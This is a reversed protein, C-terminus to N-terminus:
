PATVSSAGQQSIALCILRERRADESRGLKAYAKVLALHAELNGPESRLASELHPLGGALDGTEVLAKGYVLQGMPLSPDDAIASKADDMSGTYNGELERAWAIMAHARANAPSVKLEEAFQQVAEKPKTPFLLYGYFYHVNALKPHQAFIAQFATQGGDGRQLMADIAAHGASSLLANQEGPTEGPLADMRLGAMGSAIAIDESEIGHTVLLKLKGIAEEFRKARMLLLAEHYYIIQANKPQNAAGLAEARELDGLANSFESLHFECLGRLAMAPGADPTLALYHTLAESAPAYANADYQLIGLYWWGDAWNPDQSTAKRYLKIAQPIDGQSRATNASAALSDFDDAQSFACCSLVFSM